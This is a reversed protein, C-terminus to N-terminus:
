KLAREFMDTFFITIAIPIAVATCNSAMGRICFTIGEKKMLHKYTEILNLDTKFMENRLVDLPNTLAAGALGASVSKIGSRILIDTNGKSPDALPLNEEMYDKVVIATMYKPVTKLVGASLGHWLAGFGRTQKIYSMAQTVNSFNSKPDQIMIASRVLPMNIFQVCCSIILPPITQAIPKSINKDLMWHKGKDSGYFIAARAWTMGFVTAFVGRYPMTEPSLVKLYRSLVTPGEIVFGSQAIAAARWLPFNVIAAMGSASFHCLAHQDM